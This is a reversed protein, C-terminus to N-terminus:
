SGRCAPRESRIRLGHTAARDRLAAEMAVADDTALVFRQMHRGEREVVAFVVGDRGDPLVSREV